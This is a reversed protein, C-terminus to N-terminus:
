ASTAQPVCSSTDADNPESPGCKDVAKRRITQQSDHNPAICHDTLPTPNQSDVELPTYDSKTTVSRLEDDRQMSDLGTYEKTVNEAIQVRVYPSKAADNPDAIESQNLQEYGKNKKNVTTYLSELMIEKDASTSQLERDNTPQIGLNRIAARDEHTETSITVTGDAIPKEYGSSNKVRDYPNPIEYGSSNKVEDYPNPIERLAMELRNYGRRTEGDDEDCPIESYGNNKIYPIEDYIGNAAILASRRSTSSALTNIGRVHPEPTTAVINHTFTVTLPIM